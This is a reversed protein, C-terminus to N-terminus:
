LTKFIVFIQPNRDTFDRTKRSVIRSQNYTHIFCLTIMKITVFNQLLKTVLNKYVNSQNFVTQGYNVRITLSQNM